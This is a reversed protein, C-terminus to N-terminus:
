SGPPAMDRQGALGSAPAASSPLDFVTEYVRLPDGDRDRRFYVAATGGRDQPYLWAEVGREPFSRVLRLNVPGLLARVQEQTMGTEVAAFREQTVRRLDRARRLAEALPQYGPDLRRQTEYIEIARRYDGGREIWEAAVAMDEDSKMRVAAQREPPVPGGGLPGFSDIFAVLRSGYRQSAEAVVRQREAVEREIAARQEATPATSEEGDPEGGARAAAGALRERQAALAARSRALDGQLRRLETWQSRQAEDLEPAEASRVCALAAIVALLLLLPAALGRPSTM